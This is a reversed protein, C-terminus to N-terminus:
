DFVVAIRDIDIGERAVRLDHYIVAVLISTFAQAAVQWVFVGLIAVTQGAVAHLILQVMWRVIANGVGVLLFIGLIRWRNGKTLYGSRQLSAIPGLREIVCVPLAVSWMLMFILGPIVLLVFGVMLGVIQCILMGMIPFFRALGRGLSEGITFEQGRMRQVAGYLSAAQGLLSLAMWLIGVVAAIGAGTALMAPTPRAVGWSQMTTIGLLTLVLYPSLAIAALAFFKVADESLVGFTRYIADGVRLSSPAAPMMDTM